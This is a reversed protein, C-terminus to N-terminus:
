PASLTYVAQNEQITLLVLGLNGMSTQLAEFDAYAKTDIVIYKVNLERLLAVSESNPFQNLIPNIYQYQAPQNANFFGGVFPKHYYLTYYIQAQDVSESFPMQVVAGEDPQDALWLDVQRPEPQTLQAAYSGPYFEFLILLVCGGTLIKQKVPSLKRHIQDFGIGALLAIFILVFIGFRMLARMKDFFPLRFFLWYSPLYIYTESRKFFSQLFEPIQWVVNQNNWHLNIGLSLIFAVLTVMGATWILKRHPSKKNAVIAVLSLICGTLSIYFSGEIWLSRDFFQSVWAGLLFHDSSPLIYDTPSASYVSAYEIPRSAIGGSQSLDMFPKVSAYMLPISILAAILLNFWFAKHTLTKFKSLLLYGGVFVVSILITMYLYYMSTFGIAALSFATLLIAKWDPKKETTLIQYLGMFYLPFWQTGSLNLHGALFHAMRYPLFAYMTGALLGASDSKTLSRIWLYMFFGSLVFTLLMAINYGAVPGLVASFPVGPLASALTTDTTSLNWGEPYNMWPNFFLHGKGEFLVQQYWRILWVFYINDGYGGLVSQKLQFALPYTMLATALCYYLFVGILRFRKLKQFISKM